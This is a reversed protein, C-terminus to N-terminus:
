SWRSRPRPCTTAFPTWSKQVEKKQAQIDSLNDKINQIDQKTVDAYAIAALASALLSLLLVAALVIVIIRQTKKNM